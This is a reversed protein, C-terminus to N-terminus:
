KSGKSVQRVLFIGMGGTLLVLIIALIAALNKFMVMHEISKLRVIKIEVDVFDIVNSLVLSFDKYIFALKKIENDLKLTEAAIINFTRFYSAMYDLAKREFKLPLKRGSLKKKFSEFQNNMLLLYNKQKRHIFDKEFRRMMLLSILLSDAYHAKFYAEADHASNRLSGRLGSKETLGIKSLGMFVVDFQQMHLQLAESMDRLPKEIEQAVPNDKMSTVIILASRALRHYQELYQAQKTLLLNKEARRMELGKSLLNMSYGYLEHYEKQEQLDAQIILSGIHLTGILLLIGVIVVSVLRTIPQTLRLLLMRLGRSKESLEQKVTARTM